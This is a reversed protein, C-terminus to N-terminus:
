NLFSGLIGEAAQPILNHMFEVRFYKVETKATERGHRITQFELRSAAFAHLGM